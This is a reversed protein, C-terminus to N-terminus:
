IVLLFHGRQVQTEWRRGRAQTPKFYPLAGKFRHTHSPSKVVFDLEPDTKPDYELMCHFHVKDDVSKGNKDKGNVSREAKCTVRWAKQARCYEIFEDWIAEFNDTNFDGNHTEMVAYGRIRFEKKKSQGEANSEEQAAKAAALKAWGSVKKEFNNNAAQLDKLKQLKTGTLMTELQACRQKLEALPPAKSLADLGFGVSLDTLIKRPKADEAPVKLFDKGKSSKSLIASADLGKGM